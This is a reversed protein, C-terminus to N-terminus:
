LGPIQDPDAKKVLVPVLLWHADVPDLCGGNRCAVPDAAREVAPLDPGPAQSRHKARRQCGEGGHGYCVM